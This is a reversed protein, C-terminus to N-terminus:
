EIRKKDKFVPLSWAAVETRCPWGAVAWYRGSPSPHLPNKDEEPCHLSPRRWSWGAAPISRRGWWRRPCKAQWQWQFGEWLDSPNVIFSNVETTTNYPTMTLIDTSQLHTSRPTCPGGPSWGSLSPAWQADPGCAPGAAGQAGSASIGPEPSLGLGTRYGGSVVGRSWVTRVPRPDPASCPCCSRCQYSFALILTDSLAVNYLNKSYTGDPEHAKFIHWHSLHYLPWNPAALM